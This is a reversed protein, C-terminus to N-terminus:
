TGAAVKATIFQRVDGVTRLKMLEENSVSIKLVDEALVVIEMLSLSDLGLDEVLRLNDDQGQLKPRLEREVYREIVGRVLTGLHKRDRTRRFQCAAEFTEPSCRKLTAQLEALEAPSFSDASLGKTEETAMTM